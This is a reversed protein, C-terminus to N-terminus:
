VDDGTIEELLALGDKIEVRPDLKSVLVPKAVTEETLGDLRGKGVIKEIATLTTLKPKQYLQAETVGLSSLKGIIEREDNIWKRRTSGLVAKLGPLPKGSLVRNLAFGRAAKIFDEIKESQLIIAALQEDSITEPSPLVIEDPTVLKLSTETQLYAEYKKCIAKAPCWKCHSGVSFKPKQKIYIQQAAKLMKREWVDLAKNTLTAERYADKGICRPQYVSVRVADIDKGAARIEKRLACAYSKLQGSKESTYGYGNKYDVLHAIRKARDDLFIAWFDVTGFIQLQEDFVFREEIGWAKNTISEHLINEWVVQKYGNANEIEEPEYNVSLLNFRADPDTGSLKHQLFDSVAVECLEHVRTGKAAEPGAPPVEINRILMVSGPCNVWRDSASLALESHERDNHSTM